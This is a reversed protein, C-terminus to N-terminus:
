VGPLDGDICQLADPYCAPDGVCVSRGSDDEGCTAVDIVIGNIPPPTCDSEVACSKACGREGNLEACVFSDECDADDICPLIPPEEPPAPQADPEDAFRCFSLGALAFSTEDCTFGDGCSGATCQESCYVPPNDGDILAVCVEGACDAAAECPGEGLEMQGMGNGPAPDSSDGGADCGTALAAATLVAALIGNTLSNKM